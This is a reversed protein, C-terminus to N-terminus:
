GGSNWPPPTCPTIDVRVSVNGALGNETPRLALRSLSRRLCAGARGTGSPLVGEFRVAGVDGGASVSFVLSPLSAVGVPLRAACRTARSNASRLASALKDNSYLGYTRDPSLRISPVCARPRRPSHHPASPETPSAPTPAARGQPLDAATSPPAPDAASPTPSPAPAMPAAPAAAAVAVTAPDGPSGPPASLPGAAVSPAPEDRIVFYLATAVAGSVILLALAALAIWLGLRSSSGGANRGPRAAQAHISTQAAHEAKM